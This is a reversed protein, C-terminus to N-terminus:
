PFCVGHPAECRGGELALGPPEEPYDGVARLGDTPTTWKFPGGNAVTGLVRQVRVM